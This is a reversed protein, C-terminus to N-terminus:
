LEIGCKQSSEATLTWKQFSLFFRIILAPYGSTVTKVTAESLDEASDPKRSSIKKRVTILIESNSEPEM